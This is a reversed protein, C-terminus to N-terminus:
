RFQPRFRRFQDEPIIYAYMRHIATFSVTGHREHLHSLDIVKVRHHTSLFTFVERWTGYSIRFHSLKIQMLPIKTTQLFAILRDSSLVVKRMEMCRLNEFLVKKVSNYLTLSEGPGNNSFDLQLNELRKMFGLM